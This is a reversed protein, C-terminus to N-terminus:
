LVLAGAFKIWAVKNYINNKLTSLINFTKKNKDYRFYMTQSFNLGYKQTTLGIGISAISVKKNRSIAVSLSAHKYTIGYNSFWGTYNSISANKNGVIVFAAVSLNPAKLLKKLSFGSKISKIGRFIKNYAKTVNNFNSSGGLFAFLATNWRNGQKYFIYEIGGIIRGIAVSIQIGFGIFKISAKGTPDSNNVPNNNCYAFLNTGAETDKTIGSIEAIDSNIFRCISPDYYRSQLYYYGTENDYYYGRYRIPNQQAIETDAVTVTGWADYEYNGVITGSTDTIALVDNM